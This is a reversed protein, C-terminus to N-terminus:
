TQRWAMIDKKAVTKTVISRYTKSDPLILEGFKDEERGGGLKTKKIKPGQCKGLFNIIWKNIGVRSVQQSKSDSQIGM